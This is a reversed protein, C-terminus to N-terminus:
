VLPKGWGKRNGFMVDWDSAPLRLGGKITQATITRGSLTFEGQRVREHFRQWWLVEHERLGCRIVVKGIMVLWM